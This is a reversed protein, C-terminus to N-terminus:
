SQMTFGLYGTLDASNRGVATGVLVSLLLNETVVFQAGGSFYGNASGGRTSNPLLGYTEGMMTLRETAQYRVAQGLFWVDDGLVGRSADVVTYGVNWDFSARDWTRTGIVVPGVDVHGTGLGRRESATPVKLDLRVSVNIGEASYARMRWKTDLTLDTAGSPDDEHAVPTFGDWRQYGLTVGLEGRSSLGIVPNVPVTHLSASGTRSLQWGANLQLHGREVTDADDTTLPSVAFALRAFAIAVLPAVVNPLKPRRRWLQPM